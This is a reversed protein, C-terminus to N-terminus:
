IFKKAGYPEKGSILIKNVDIDDIKFLKKKQLILKKSRKAELM